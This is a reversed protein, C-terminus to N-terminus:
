KEEYNECEGICNFIYCSFYDEELKGKGTIYYHNKDIYRIHQKCKPEPWQMESHKCKFCFVKTKKPM